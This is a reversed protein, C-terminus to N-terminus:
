SLNKDTLATTAAAADTASYGISYRFVDKGGRASWPGEDAASPDDSGQGLCDDIATGLPGTESLNVRRMHQPGKALDALLADRFIPLADGAAAETEETYEFEYVDRTAQSHSLSGVALADGRLRCMTMKFHYYHAM